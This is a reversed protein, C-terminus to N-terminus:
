SNSADNSDTKTLGNQSLWSKITDKTLPELQTSFISNDIVISDDEVHCAVFAPYSSISWEAKLTNVELNTVLDTIDVYELISSLQINEENEITKLVTNQMYTCDNDEPSCFFYFHTDSTQDSLTYDHVSAYDIIDYPSLNSMSVDVITPEFAAYGVVIGSYIVLLFLFTFLIKKLM